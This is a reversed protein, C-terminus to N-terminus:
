KNWAEIILAHPSGKYKGDVLLRRWVTDGDKVLLHEVRMKSSPVHKAELGIRPLCRAIGDAPLELVHSWNIKTKM